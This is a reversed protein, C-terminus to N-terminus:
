SNSMISEAFAGVELLKISLNYITANVTGGASFAFNIVGRNNYICHLEIASAM